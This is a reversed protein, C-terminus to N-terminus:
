IFVYLMCYIFFGLACPYHYLMSIFVDVVFSFSHFWMVGYMYSHLPVFVNPPLIYHLLTRVHPRCALLSETLAHHPSHIFSPWELTMGTLTMAHWQGHHCCRMTVITFRPPMLRRKKMYMQRRRRWAGVSLFPSILIFSPLPDISSKFVFVTFSLFM